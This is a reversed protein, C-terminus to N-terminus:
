SPTLYSQALLFSAFNAHTNYAWCYRLIYKWFAKQLYQRVTPLKQSKIKRKRVNKTEKHYLHIVYLVVFMSIFKNYIKLDVYFHNQINIIFTSRCRFKKM